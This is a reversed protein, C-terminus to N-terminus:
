IYRIYSSFAASSVSNFLFIRSYAQFIDLDFEFVDSQYTAQAKLEANPLWGTKLNKTNLESSQTYIESQNALPYNVLMSEYCDELRITNEQAIVTNTIFFLIIVFRRM